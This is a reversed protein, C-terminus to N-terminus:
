GFVERAIREVTSKQKLHTWTDWMFPRAPMGRTWRLKGLREDFYAWGTSRYKGKGGPHPAAGGKPGTGFEVYQAHDNDTYVIWSAGAHAVSGPRIDLSGFLEATDIANYDLVRARAFELGEEAMRRTFEEVKDSLNGKHGDVFDIAQRIGDVTLSAEM